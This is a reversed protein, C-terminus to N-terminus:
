FMNKFSEWIGGGYKAVDRFTVVLFLLMLLIFGSNHIWNEISPKVKKRTIGELAIFIFRGGDLAPFPLFNIVGLNISLVAIFQIIFVFGMRVMQGTIVAVGVPGSFEPAMHKNVVLDHIMLGFAEIIRWILIGTTRLGQWISQFFGYDIVGTDVMGVGVIWDDQEQNYRPTVKIDQKDGRRNISLEIEEEGIDQIKYYLDDSNAIPQGNLGILEDGVMIEKMFAPSDELVEVVVISHQTYSDAPTDKEIAQPLGFYFAFSLFIFALFFNMVVGASVILARKWVPQVSFSHPDEKHDGSEGKIKVYGGLPIWGISYKIGKRTFSFMRPPFGISFEEVAVGLKIATIFHGLEHVLILLGLVLIFSIITLM